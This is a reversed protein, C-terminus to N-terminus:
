AATLSCEMVELVEGESLNPETHDNAGLVLAIREDGGSLRVSEVAEISIEVWVYSFRRNRALLIMGRRIIGETIEGEVVAGRGDLHFSRAVRFRGRRLGAIAAEITHFGAYPGSM